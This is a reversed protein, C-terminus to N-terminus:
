REGRMAKEIENAAGVLDHDARVLANRLRRQHFRAEMCRKWWRQALEGDAEVTAKLKKLERESRDYWDDIQHRDQESQDFAAQLERVREANRRNAEQYAALATEFLVSEGLQSVRWRNVPPMIVSGVMHPGLVEEKTVEAVEVDAM